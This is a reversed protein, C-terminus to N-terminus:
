KKILKKLGDRVKNKFLKGRRVLNHSKSHIFNAVGEGATQATVHLPILTKTLYGQFHLTYFKSFVPTGNIGKVKGYLGDNRRIMKKINTSPTTEFSYECGNFPVNVNFDFSIGDKELSLLNLVHPHAETRFVDLLIMDSVNKNDLFKGALTDALLKEFGAKNAYKDLTFRCFDHILKASWFSTHGSTVSDEGHQFFMTTGEYKDKIYTNFVPKLDQLVVVDCDAHVFHKIGLEKVIDNIIFWRDFCAKEFFYPNISHHRYVKDFEKIGQTYKRVDICNYDRYDDFYTDTLVYVNNKGNSLVAQKLVHGFFLSTNEGLQLFFVPLESQSLQAASGTNGPEM